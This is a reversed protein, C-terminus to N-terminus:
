EDELVTFWGDFNYREDDLGLAQVSYFYTGTGELKPNWQDNPRELEGVRRGWRDFIIVKMEAMNQTLIRFTDNKGNGGMSVVNPIILFESDYYTMVDNTFVESCGNLYATLTVDYTYEGSYIATVPQSIDTTIVTDGNGMIWVFYDGESVNTFVVELPPIGTTDSAEFAAMPEYVIVEVESEGLCGNEDLGQVSYVASSDPTVLTSLAAPNEIGAGEWSASSLGQVELVGTEGPCLEVPSTTIPAPNDYVTVTVEAM